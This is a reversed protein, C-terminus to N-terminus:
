GVGDMVLVLGLGGWFSGEVVVERRVRELGLGVVVLGVWMMWGVAAFIVEVVVTPYALPRLIELSSLRALGAVVM